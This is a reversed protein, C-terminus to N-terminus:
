DKMKSEIASSWGLKNRCAEYFDHEGPHILTLKNKAKSVHILGKKHVLSNQGDLVIKANNDNILPEITLKSDDPVIFPNASLSHPFMPLINFINVSPHIITGGGSLSYATSGTPTAIILGDARQRFVFKDDVYLNYEILKAVAGSHFVVENLAILENGNGEIKCELFSRSDAQYHGKIVELLSSAIQDPSIDTLFGLNGLNIGLIPIGKYGFYRSCGLITGDGGIAILLSKKDLLKIEKKSDKSHSSLCSYDLRALNAGLNALIEECQDALELARKNKYDFVLSIDKFIIEKKVM